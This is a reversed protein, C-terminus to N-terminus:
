RALQFTTVFDPNREDDQAFDLSSEISAGAMSPIFNQEVLQKGLGRNSNQQWRALSCFLVAAQENLQLFGASWHRIVIEPDRGESQLVVESENGPVFVELLDRLQQERLTKAPQAFCQSRLMTIKRVFAPHQGALGSFPCLLAVATAQSGNNEDVNGHGRYLSQHM